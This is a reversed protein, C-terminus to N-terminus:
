ELSAKLNRVQVTPNERFIESRMITFNAARLKEILDETTASFLEYTQHITAIRTWGFSRFFHVRSPNTVVDPASVRAFKPFLKKESLAPSVRMTTTSLYRSSVSRANYDHEPEGSAPLSQGSM